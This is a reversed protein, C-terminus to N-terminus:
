HTSPQNRLIFELERALAPPLLSRISKMMELLVLVDARSAQVFTSNFKQVWRSILGIARDSLDPDGLDAAQCYLKLQQWKGGTRLLRLVVPRVNLNPNKLAEAWITDVTAARSLLLTSASERAVSPVDSAVLHRFTEEYGEIKLIRFARVVSRRVRASPSAMRQVILGADSQNGTEALGLVAIDIRNDTPSLIAVRYLDAPSQGLRESVASQCTRRISTLRDFLFHRLDEPDASTQALVAEFAIERIPGYPDHAAQRMLGPRAEPLIEFGTLFGWKRLIVDADAAAHRIVENAPFARNAIAIRHCRRRVELSESDVGRRLSDACEPSQLLDYIWRSYVPLYRSNTELRGILGLSRVFSDGYAVNLKDRVAGEAELRVERVWDVLRMLLFPIITASPCGSLARLAEARVYGRRHCSVLAVYLQDADSSGGLGAIADPKVSYWDELHAGSHRLSEDLLPLSEIPVRSVLRLITSRAQARVRKNRVLGFSMLYPIAFPEAAEGIEHLSAITDDAGGWWREHIQRTRLKTVIAETSASLRKPYYIGL